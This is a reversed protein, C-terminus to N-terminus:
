CVIRCRLARGYLGNKWDIVRRALWLANAYVFDGDRGFQQVERWLVAAPARCEARGGARMAYFAHRPNWDRCALSGEVWRGAVTHNREAELAAAASERFDRLRQPILARIAADDAIYDHALGEVLAAAVNTPVSTVLRLWYSSLRPTLVPVGLIRPSRGVLAGYRRMMDEYTLTEAGGIELVPDGDLQATAVGTLYVLLNELAIPTSRSRVWRPTLMVPLHNVLDRIVEWAASGPGVIMGARLEVVQCRARRLIEGTEIRARLHQSVPREPALGGLYVIRRVGAAGAVEVLAEAGRRELRIFDGGASMCHVLYFVVDAGAVARELSARDLIDAAVTEVGVWERAQLVAPNRATARVRCGEALLHPVLHTGVYGSAGIVAALPATRGPTAIM